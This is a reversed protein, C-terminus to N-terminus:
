DSYRPGKPAKKKGEKKKKEEVIAALGRRILRNARAESLDEPVSHESESPHIVGKIITQHLLKIKM